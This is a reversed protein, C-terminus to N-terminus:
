YESASDGGDISNIDTLFAFEKWTSNFYIAMKQSTTNYFLEGNSPSLPYSAGSDVIGTGGGGGGGGLTKWETGDNYKVLKSASNYYIDGASASVPDTTLNVLRLSTLFRKAM